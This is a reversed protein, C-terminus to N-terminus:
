RYKDMKKSEPLGSLILAVVIEDTAEACVIETNHNGMLSMQMYYIRQM